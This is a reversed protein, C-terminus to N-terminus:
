AGAMADDISLWPMQDVNIAASNDMAVKSAMTSAKSWVELIDGLDDDNNRLSACVVHQDKEPASMESLENGGTKLGVAPHRDGDKVPPFTISSDLPHEGHPRRPTLVQTNVQTTGKWLTTAQETSVPAFAPVLAATAFKCAQKAAMELDHSRVRPCSM